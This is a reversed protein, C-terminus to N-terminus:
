YMIDLAAQVRNDDIAETQMVIYELIHTMASQLIRIKSEVQIRFVNRKRWRCAGTLTKEIRGDM